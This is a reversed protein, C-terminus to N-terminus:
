LVYYEEDTEDDRITVIEANYNLHNKVLEKTIQSFVPDQVDCYGVVDEMEEDPVSVDYNYTITATVTVRRSM